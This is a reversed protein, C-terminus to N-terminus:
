KMGLTLVLSSVSESSIILSVIYSCPDSTKSPHIDGRRIKSVYLLSEPYTSISFKRMYFLLVTFEQSLNALIQSTNCGYGKQRSIVLSYRWLETGTDM